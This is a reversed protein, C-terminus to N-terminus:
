ESATKRWLLRLALPGASDVRCGPLAQAAVSQLESALYAQRVSAKGDLLSIKSKFFLSGAATVLGLATYSRKVDFAAVALRAVRASESLLSSIEEPSFHHLFLTSYLVDFSGDAFPLRFADAAVSTERPALRIHAILRDLGVVRAEIGRRRLQSELDLGTHGTGSGLDLIRLRPLGLSMLFRLFGLRLVLRGGLFRHVWEIDRLSEEADAASVGADLIEVSPTRPPVPLM